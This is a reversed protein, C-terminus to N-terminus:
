PCAPTFPFNNWAPLYKSPKSRPVWLLFSQLDFVSLSPLGHPLTEFSISPIGLEPLPSSPFYTFICLHTSFSFNPTWHTDLQHLLLCLEISHPVKPFALHPSVNKFPQILLSALAPHFSEPTVDHACRHWWCSNLAQHHDRSGWLPPLYIHGFSFPCYRPLGLDPHILVM